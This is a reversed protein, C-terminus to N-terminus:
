GFYFGKNENSLVKEPIDNFGNSAFDSDSSSYDADSLSVNNQNIVSLVFMKGSKSIFIKIIVNDSGFGKKLLKFQELLEVAEKENFLNM